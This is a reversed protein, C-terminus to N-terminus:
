PAALIASPQASAVSSNRGGPRDYPCHHALSEIHELSRALAILPREAGKDVRMAALQVRVAVPHEARQVVGVVRELVGHQAGPASEAPELAVLRYPRPEVSDGGVCRQVDDALARLADHREVDDRRGVRGTVRADRQGLDRPELGIGIM